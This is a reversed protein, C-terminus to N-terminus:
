CGSGADITLFRSLKLAASAAPTVIRLPLSAPTNVCPSLARSTSSMTAYPM